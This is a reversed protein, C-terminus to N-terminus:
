NYSALRFCREMHETDWREGNDLVYVTIPSPYNEVLEVQVIERKTKTFNNIIKDGQTFM